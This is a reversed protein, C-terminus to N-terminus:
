LIQCNARIIVWDYIKIGDAPTDIIQFTKISADALLPDYSPVEAEIIYQIVDDKGVVATDGSGSVVSGGTSTHSNKDTVSGIRKDINIEVGKVSVQKPNNGYFTDEGDKTNKLVFLSPQVRVGANDPKTVLLYYGIHNTMIDDDSNELGKTVIGGKTEIAGDIDTKANIIRQLGDAITQSM